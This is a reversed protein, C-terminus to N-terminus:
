AADEWVNTLTMTQNHLDCHGSTHPSIEGYSYFGVLTTPKTLASYAAEVEEDAREGLVLRRGVCSVAITLSETGARPGRAAMAAGSAGDILRDFNAHMLQALAGNAIDGAFTMSSTKEDVSLVTRVLTKEDDKSGRLALPFLLATSPLGAAQEGLYRKYLELAPKGDLEYLVNAVSRTVRREPGFIDWGGRSGHGAHVSDGYLGVATVVRQTPIGRELAWTREFRSGDGALGGTAVVDTSLVSNLGRVLESGNIDLGDSFVHVSRLDPKSLERAIHEGAEFSREATVPASAFAARAREFHAIAVSFTRDYIRTGHIEGATSCGVVISRGFAQRLGRLASRLEPDDAVDPAGFVFLVTSPGDLSAPLDASWGHGARFLLPVVKM